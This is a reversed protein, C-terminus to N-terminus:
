GAVVRLRTTKKKIRIKEVVALGIIVVLVNPILISGLVPQITQTLSLQPQIITGDNDNYDTQILPKEFPLSVPLDSPFPWLTKVPPPPPKAPGPAVVDASSIGPVAVFCSLALAFVIMGVLLCGAFGIYSPRKSSRNAMDEIGIRGWMDAKKVASHGSLRRESYLKRQVPMQVYNVIEDLGDNKQEDM